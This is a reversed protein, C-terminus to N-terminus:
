VRIHILEEVNAGPLETMTRLLDMPAPQQGKSRIM